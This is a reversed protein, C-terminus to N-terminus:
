SSGDSALECNDFIVQGQTVRLVQGIVKIQDNPMLGQLRAAWTSPAFFFTVTVHDADKSSVSTIYMSQPVVTDVAASVDRWQGKYQAM